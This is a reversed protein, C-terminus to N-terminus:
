LPCPRDKVVPLQPCSLAGACPDFPGPDEPMPCAGAPTPLAMTGLGLVAAVMATRVRRM